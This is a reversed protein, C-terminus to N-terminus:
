TLVPSSSQTEPRFELHPSCGQLELLPIGLTGECSAHLSAKGSDVHAPGQPGWQLELPFQRLEVYVLLNEGGLSILGKEASADRPFDCRREQAKFPDKVGKLCSLFNGLIGTEM